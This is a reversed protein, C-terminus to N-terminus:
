HGQPITVPTLSLEARAISLAPATPRRFGHRAVALVRADTVGVWLERERSRRLVMGGPSRLADRARIRRAWQLEEGATLSRELRARAGSEIVSQMCGGEQAASSAPLSPVRRNAAAM